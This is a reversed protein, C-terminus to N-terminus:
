ALPAHPGDALHPSEEPTGTPETAPLIPETIPLAEPAARCQDAPAHWRPFSRGLMTEVASIEAEYRATVSPPFEALYAHWDTTQAQEEYLLWTVLQRMPSFRKITGMTNSVWRSSGWTRMHVDHVLRALLRSRPRATGNVRRHLSAPLFDPDAGVFEYLRRTVAAPSQALDDYPIVLVQDAPFLRRLTGVQTACYGNSFLDPRRAGEASLSTQALGNRAFFRWASLAREYPNRICCILRMDPRYESIRALAEASSLYHECVEGTIRGAAKAPFFGEYWDPGLNYFSSFFQTGKNPPVFIGPHERLIEFFWSSGARSSGVFVFSPGRGRTQAL